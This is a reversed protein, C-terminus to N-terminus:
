ALTHSFRDGQIGYCIALQIMSISDLKKKELKGNKSQWQTYDLSVLFPPSPHIYIYFTHILSEMPVTKGRQSFATAKERTELAVWM